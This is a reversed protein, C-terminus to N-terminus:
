RILRHHTHQILSPARVKVAEGCQGSLVECLISARVYPFVESIASSPISMQIRAPSPRQTCELGFMHLCALHFCNGGGTALFCCWPAPSFLSSDSALKSHTCSLRCKRQSCSAIHILWLFHWVDAELDTVHIIHGKGSVQDSLIRYISGNSAKTPRDARM